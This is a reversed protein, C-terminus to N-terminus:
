QCPKWNQVGFVLYTFKPLIIWVLLIPPSSLVTPRHYPYYSWFRGKKSAQPLAGPEGFCQGVRKWENRLIDNKGRDAKEPFHAQLGSQKLEISGVVFFDSLAASFFLAVNENCLGYRGDIGRHRPPMSERTMKRRTRPHQFAFTQRQM